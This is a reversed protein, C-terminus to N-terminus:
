GVWDAYYKLRVEGSQDFRVGLYSLTERGALTCLKQVETHINQQMHLPMLAACLSPSVTPYDIKIAPTLLTDTFSISIFISPEQNAPALCHHWEAFHERTSTEIGFLEM